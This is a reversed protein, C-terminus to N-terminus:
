EDALVGKQMMECMRAGNKKTAKKNVGDAQESLTPCSKGPLAGQVKEDALCRREKGQALFLVMQHTRDASAHLVPGHM